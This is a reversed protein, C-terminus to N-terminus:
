ESIGFFMPMPQVRVLKTPYGRAVYDSKRGSDMEFGDVGDTWWEYVLIADLIDNYSFTRGNISINARAYEALMRYDFALFGECESLWSAAELKTMSAPKISELPFLVLQWAGASAVVIGFRSGVDHTQAGNVLTYHAPTEETGAVEQLAMLVYNAM